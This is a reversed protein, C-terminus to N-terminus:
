KVNLNDKLEKAFNIMNTKDSNTSTEYLVMYFNDFRLQYIYNVENGTANPAKELNPVLTAEYHNYKESNGSIIVQKVNNYELQYKNQEDYYKKASVTDSFKYLELSYGNGSANSATVCNISNLSEKDYGEETISLGKTTAFSNFVKEIDIEKEEKNSNEQTDSTSNNLVNNEVDAFKSGLLWGVVCCLIAIIIILIITLTNNKNEM